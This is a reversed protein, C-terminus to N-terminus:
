SGGIGVDLARAAGASLVTSTLDASDLRRGAALRRRSRVADAADVGRITTAAQRESTFIYSRQEVVGGAAEVGPVSTVLDALRAALGGSEIARVEVLGTGALTEVWDT